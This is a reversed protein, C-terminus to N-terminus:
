YHLKEIGSVIKIQSIVDKINGSYQSVLLKPTYNTQEVCINCAVEAAIPSKDHTHGYFRVLPLPADRDYNMCPEHSMFYKDDFIVCHPVVLAMGCKEWWIQPHRRDHNGMILIVHGNLQFLTDKVKDSSGLCFDGLNFVIDDPRVVNNWNHILTSNMEEVSAFPRNCYQIINNHYFHDDSTIYINCTAKNMM